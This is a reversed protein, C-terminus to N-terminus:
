GRVEQQEKCFPSQGGWGRRGGPGQQEPLSLFVRGLSWEGVHAHGCRGRCESGGALEGRGPLGM